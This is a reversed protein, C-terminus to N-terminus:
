TTRLFFVALSLTRICGKDEQKANRYFLGGYKQGVTSWFTVELVRLIALSKAHFCGGKLVATKSQREHLVKALHCFPRWIDKFELSINGIVCEIKRM